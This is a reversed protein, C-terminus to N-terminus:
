IIEYVQRQKTLSNVNLKSTQIILFYNWFTAFLHNEGVLLTIECFELCVCVYYYTIYKLPGKKVECILGHLKPRWLILRDEDIPKKKVEYASSVM